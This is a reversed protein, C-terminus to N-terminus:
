ARALLAEAFKMDSGPKQRFYLQPEVGECEALFCGSQTPIIDVRVYLLTQLTQGVAKFFAEPLSQIVRGGFSVIDEPPEKARATGGYESQVLISSQGPLKHVAHSYEGDIYILSWEGATKIDPLFPQLIYDNQKFASEIADRQEMFDKKDRIYFLGKGSASICPKLVIPEENEIFPKLVQDAHEDKSLFTSPVIPVGVAEFAKLYSKHLLWRMLGAPNEVPIAAQELDQIWNLFNERDDTTDM